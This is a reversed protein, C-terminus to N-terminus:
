ILVIFGTEVWRFVGAFYISIAPVLMLILCVVVGLFIFTRPIRIVLIDEELESM